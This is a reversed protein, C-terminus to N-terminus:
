KKVKRIVVPADLGPIGVPIPPLWRLVLRRKEPQSRPGVWFHHWHGRRWHPRPASRNSEREPGGRTDTAVRVGRLAPGLRAGIDWTRVENAAAHKKKRAKAKSPHIPKEYDANASCIYLVLNIYPALAPAMDKIHEQPMGPTVFDYARKIAEEVSWHGLHLPVFHCHTDGLGVADPLYFVFRLESRNDNVDYELHM